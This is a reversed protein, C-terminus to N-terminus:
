NRSYVRQRPTAVPQLSDGYTSRVLDDHYARRDKHWQNEERTERFYRPVRMGTAKGFHENFALDRQEQKRMWWGPLTHSQMLYEANRRGEPTGRTNWADRMLKYSNMAMSYPGMTYRDLWTNAAAEPMAIVPHNQLIKARIKLDEVFERVKGRTTTPYRPFADQSTEPHTVTANGDATPGLTEGPVLAPGGTSPDTNGNGQPAAFKFLLHQLPM